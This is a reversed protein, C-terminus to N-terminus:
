QTTEIRNRINESDFQQENKELMLDKAALIFKQHYEVKSKTKEIIIGWDGQMSGLVHIRM